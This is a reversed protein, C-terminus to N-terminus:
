SFLVLFDELGEFLGQRGYLGFDSAGDTFRQIIGIVFISLTQRQQLGTSQDFRSLEPALSRRDLSIIFCWLFEPHGSHSCHRAKGRLPAAAITGDSIATIWGHFSPLRCPHRLVKILFFIILGAAM